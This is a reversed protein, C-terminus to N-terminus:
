ARYCYGSCKIRDFSIKRIFSCTHLIGIVIDPQGEKIYQRVLSISSSWKKFKNTNSKVLPLTQIDSNLTYTIPEFLNSIMIVNHDKKQLVMLSFLELENQEEM